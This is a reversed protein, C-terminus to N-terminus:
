HINPKTLDSLFPIVGNAFKLRLDTKGKDYRSFYYVILRSNEEIFRFLIISIVKGKPGFEFDNGLYWNPYNTKQIGTIFKYKGTKYKEKSVILREANCKIKAAQTTTVKLEYPLRMVPLISLQKLSKAYNGTQPYYDYIIPKYHPLNFPSQM